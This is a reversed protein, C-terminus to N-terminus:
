LAVECRTPTAAPPEDHLSALLASNARALAGGRAELAMAAGKRVELAQRQDTTLELLRAAARTGPLDSLLNIATLRSAEDGSRVALDCLPLVRAGLASLTTLLSQRTEPDAREFLTRAADIAAAPQAEQLATVAALAVETEADTALTQLARIAEPDTRAALTQVALTREETAPSHSLEAVRESVGEAGLAALGLLAQERVSVDADNLAERLAGTFAPDKRDAFATAVTRRLTPEEVRLFRQGLLTATASPAEVLVRFLLQPEPPSTDFYKVVGAQARADRDTALALVSGRVDGDGARLTSLLQQRQEDMSLAHEAAAGEPPGEAHRAESRALEAIVERAEPVDLRSLIHEALKARRPNDGRLVRALLSVTRAPDLKSLARAAMRFEQTSAVGLYPELLAAGRPVGLEGLAQLAHLHVDGEGDAALRALLSLGREDHLAALADVLEAVAQSDDCLPLLSVIIDFAEPRGAAALALAANLRVQFDEGHAAEVVTLRPSGERTALAKLAEGGVTPEPDEGLDMLFSQAEVSPQRILAETACVRVPRRRTKDLVATIAYTIRADESAPLEALAGCIQSDAQASALRTLLEDLPSDAQAAAAPGISRARSGQPLASEPAECRPPAAAVRGGQGLFWLVAVSALAALTWIKWVVHARM